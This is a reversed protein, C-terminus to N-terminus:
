PGGKGVVARLWGLSQEATLWRLTPGCQARQCVLIGWSFRPNPRLHLAPPATLVHRSGLPSNASISNCEHVGCPMRTPVVKMETTNVWGGALVGRRSSSQGEVPPLQQLVVQLTWLPSPFARELRWKWHLRRLQMYIHTDPTWRWFVQPANM